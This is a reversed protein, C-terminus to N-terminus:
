YFNQVCGFGLFIRSSRGNQKEKEKRQENKMKSNRQESKMGHLLRKLFGVLCYALSLRSTSFWRDPTKSIPDPRVREEDSMVLRSGTTVPAGLIHRDHQSAMNSCRDLLEPTKVLSESRELITEDNEEQLM